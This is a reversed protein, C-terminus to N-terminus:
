GIIYKPKTPRGPSNVNAHRLWHRSLNAQVDYCYAVVTLAQATPVFHSFLLLNMRLHRYSTMHPLDNLPYSYEVKENPSTPRYRRIYPRFNLKVAVRAYASGYFTIESLIDSSIGGWIFIKFLTIGM